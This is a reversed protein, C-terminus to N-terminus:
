WERGRQEGTTHCQMNVCTGGRTMSRGHLGHPLRCSPPVDLQGLSCCSGDAPGRARTWRPAVRRSRLLRGCTPRATGRARAIALRPLPCVGVVHRSSVSGDLRGRGCFRLSALPFPEVVNWVLDTAQAITGELWSKESACREQGEGRRQTQARSWGGIRNRFRLVM